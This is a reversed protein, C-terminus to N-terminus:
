RKRSRTTRTSSASWTAFTANWAWRRGIFQMSPILESAPIEKLVKINKYYEGATKGDMSPAPEQGIVGPLWLLSLIVVWVYVSVTRPFLSSM